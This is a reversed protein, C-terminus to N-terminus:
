RRDVELEQPLDRMCCFGYYTEAGSGCTDELDLEDEGDFYCGDEFTHVNMDDSDSATYSAFKIEGSPLQEKEKYVAAVTQFTTCLVLGKDFCEVLIEVITANLLEPDYWKAKKGKGKGSKRKPSKPKSSSATSNSKGSNLNRSAPTSSAATADDDYDIDQLKRRADEEPDEAQPLLRHRVEKEGLIRSSRTQKRSLGLEDKNNHLAGRIDPSAMAFGFALALATTIRFYM